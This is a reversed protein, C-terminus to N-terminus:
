QLEGGRKMMDPVVAISEKVDYLSFGFWYRTNAREVNEKQLKYVCVNTCATYQKSSTLEVTGVIFTPYGSGDINVDKGDVSDIVIYTRKEEDINQTTCLERAKGGRTPMMLTSWYATDNDVTNIGIHSQIMLLTDAEGIVDKMEGRFFAPMMGKHIEDSGKHFVIVAKDHPGNVHLFHQALDM